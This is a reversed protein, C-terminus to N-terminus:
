YNNIAEDYSAYFNLRSIYGNVPDCEFEWIAWGNPWGHMDHCPAAIYEEIPKYGLQPFMISETYTEGQLYKTHILYNLHAHLQNSLWPDDANWIPQSCPQSQSISTCCGFSFLAIIALIVIHKM